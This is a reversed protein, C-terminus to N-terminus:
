KKGTPWKQSALLLGFELVGAPAGIWFLWCLTQQEDERIYVTHGKVEHPVVNGTLANAERPYYFFEMELGLYWYIAVACIAGSSALLVRRIM